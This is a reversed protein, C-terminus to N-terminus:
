SLGLTARMDVAAALLEARSGRSTPTHAPLLCHSELTVDTRLLAQETLHQIVIHVPGHRLELRVPETCPADGAVRALRVDAGLKQVLWHELCRAAGLSGMAASHEIRVSTPPEEPEWAFHEFAEALVRRWPAVRLWALDFPAHHAIQRLSRWDDGTFLASDVITRDAMSALAAIRGLSHPLETAWFLCTPIDNVLIPRVLNPLKAFQEPDARLHLREMAMVRGQGHARIRGVLDVELIGASEELSIQIARCPHRDPLAELMAATAAESREDTVVVLNLTLARSLNCGQEAAAADRWLRRLSGPLDAIDATAHVTTM